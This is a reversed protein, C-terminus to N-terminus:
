RAGAGKKAVPDHCPDARVYPAHEGDRDRRAQEPQHETEQTPTELSLRVDEGGPHHFGDPGAHNGVAQSGGGDAIRHGARRGDRAVDTGKARMQEGRRKVANGRDVVQGDRWAMATTLPQGAMDAIKGARQQIEGMVPQM